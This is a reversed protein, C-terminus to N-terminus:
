FYSTRVLEKQKKKLKLAPSEILKWSLIAFVLVVPFVVTFFTLPNLYKGFSLMVLQQLPWGYLYIGYSFDGYKAFNPFLANPHYAVYFLLYTGSIPWLVDILRLKFALMFIILAPIALWISRPILNRYVYVCSGCLFYTFFRPYYYPNGIVGGSLSQKFPFIYGLSQLFLLIYIVLLAAFLWWKKKMFGLWAFVPVMLYCIFEYHITWLSNNLGSQPLQTFYRSEIPSQLSLMNAVERKAPVFDLFSLYAQLSWKEMHGAPGFVLFSIIFAVIFGPYIRLIRKKLYEWFNASYEFSRVILFGSIVFFFDVAASGISIKGGSWKMFPELKAFKEWGYYIAYCHCIIVSTALLFRLLDFNNRQLTEPILLKNKM